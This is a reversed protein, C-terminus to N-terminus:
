ERSAAVIPHYANFPIVPNPLHRLFAKVTGCIAHVDLFREDTAFDPINGVSFPTLFWFSPM